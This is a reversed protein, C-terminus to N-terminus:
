QKWLSKLAKHTKLLQPHNYRIRKNSSEKFLAGLVKNNKQLKEKRSLTDAKANDSEKIHEIKFYYEALM